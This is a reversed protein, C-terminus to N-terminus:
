KKRKRKAIVGALGLGILSLTAPEPILNIAPVTLVGGTGTYAPMEEIAGLKGNFEIEDLLWIRDEDDVTFEEGDLYGIISDRDTDEIAFAYSPKEGVKLVDEYRSEPDGIYVGSLYQPYDTYSDLHGVVYGETDLFCFYYNLTTPKKGEVTFNGHSFNDIGQSTGEILEGFSHIVDGRAQGALGLAGLTFLVTLVLTIRTM